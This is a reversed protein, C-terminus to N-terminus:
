ENSGSEIEDAVSQAQSLLLRLQTYAPTELHGRSHEYFYSVVPRLSSVVDRHVKADSVPLFKRCTYCSLVPNKTCMSQGSDCAGIGAIPIGHPMGGIQFDHALALLKQKDIKKTFAIEAVSSYIPSIALAQNVREAQSPTSEIYVDASRVSSHGMFEAISEHSAGGDALRQAATHRLDNASWPRGTVSKMHKVISVSIEANTKGFLSREPVNEKFRVLQRHKKYEIFISSWERKIKRTVQRRDDNTRKKVLMLRVHVAGTDYVIVDEMKMRSISSPRFAYQFAILSIAAARLTEFDVSDVNMSIRECISDFHQIIKGQDSTPIFCEGSRVNRHRDQPPIPFQRVFDVYKPSWQGVNFKCLFRIFCKLSVGQQHSIRLMWDLKWKQQVSHPPSTVLEIIFNAGLIEVLAEFSTWYNCTTTLRFYSLLDLAWHKLLFKFNANHNEFNFIAVSSELQVKWQDNLDLNNLTHFVDRYDDHYRYSTPLAPLASLSENLSRLGM